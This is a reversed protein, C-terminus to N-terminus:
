LSAKIALEPCNRECEGCLICVENNMVNNVIAGAPCLLGCLGCEICRDADITLM